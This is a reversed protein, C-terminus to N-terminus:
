AVNVGGFLSNRWDRETGPDSLHSFFQAECLGREPIHDAYTLVCATLM